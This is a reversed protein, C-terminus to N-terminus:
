RGSSIWLKRSAQTRVATNYPVRERTMYSYAGQDKPIHPRLRFRRCLSIMKKLSATVCHVVVEKELPIPPVALINVPEGRVLLDMVWVQTQIALMSPCKILGVRRMTEIIPELVLRNIICHQRDKLAVAAGDKTVVLGRIGESQVRTRLQPNSYWQRAVGDLGASSMAQSLSRLRSGLRSPCAM